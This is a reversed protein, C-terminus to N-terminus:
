QDSAPSRVQHVRPAADGQASPAPVAGQTVARMVGGDYMAIVNGKADKEVANWPANHKFTGSLTGGDSHHIAANGELMGQVFDGYIWDGSPWRKVGKGDPMGDRLSGQYVFGDGLMVQGQISPPNPDAPNIEAASMASPAAPNVPAPQNVNVETSSAAPNSDDASAAVPVILSISAAGVTLAALPAWPPWNSSLV